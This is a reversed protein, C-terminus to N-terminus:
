EGSNGRVRTPTVRIALSFTQEYSDPTMGITEIGKEYKKFFAGNHIPSPADEDIVADGMIVIFNEADPEPNYNLAVKPNAQINRVKQANPSSYILFTDNEQIFWVPTPQPQGDDRVTTLWVYEAADLQAQLDPSIHVSM